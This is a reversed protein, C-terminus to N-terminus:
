IRIPLLRVEGVNMTFDTAPMGRRPNVAPSINTRLSFSFGEPISTPVRSFAIGRSCDLGMAKGIPPSLM